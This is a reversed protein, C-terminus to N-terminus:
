RVASNETERTIYFFTLVFIIGKVISTSSVGVLYRDAGYTRGFSRGVSDPRQTFSISIISCLRTRGLGSLAGVTMLEECM